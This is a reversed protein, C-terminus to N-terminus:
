SLDQPFLNANMMQGSTDLVVVNNTKSGHDRKLQEFMADYKEQFKQSRGQDINKTIFYVSAANYVPMMHYAEPLIPMQGITYTASSAALTAGVYNRKLGLATASSYTDIEYWRGDGNNATTNSQDIRLYRGIMAATWSTGSGVLANAGNAISTITGTTYDALSLDPVNRRYTLTIASAISSSPTPWIGLQGNFIFFFQPIDSSNSNSNLYDWHQRSPSEKPTYKTSGITVTLTVTKLYDGPLDYFQQAAVTSISMTKELFDWTGDACIQRINENMLTTGLSLNDSSSDSTLLGYQTRLNSYSLM